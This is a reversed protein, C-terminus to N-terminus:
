ESKEGLQSLQALLVASCNQTGRHEAAPALDLTRAVDDVQDNLLQGVECGVQFGDGTEIGLEREDGTATVLCLV